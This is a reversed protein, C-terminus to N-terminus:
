AYFRRGVPAAANQYVKVSNILWYSDVFDDPHNAVYEQCTPAKAVCTPDDEYVKGAWDGCFTTDFIIKHDKFHSDIDCGAGAWTAQAQPWNAPTPNGATIDAPINTRPFFYIKIHQSTWELAYVGGGIQNFGTGFTQIDGSPAGCGDNGGNKNCDGVLPSSQSFQCQPSTHLTYTTNTALNVGEIIDIEGQYPWNDGFTWFAPWQGCKPEPQHAIDAIILGKTYTKKSEMRLSFRGNVAPAQHGVGLFVGNEAYGAMGTNNAMHSGVYKVFGHTPDDGNYFNFGNFFNKDDYSDQLTYAAQAATLSLLGGLGLLAKRFTM